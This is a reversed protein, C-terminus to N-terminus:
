TGRGRTGAAKRLGLRCEHGVHNSIDLRKLDAEVRENLRVRQLHHPHALLVAEELVHQAAVALEYGADVADLLM